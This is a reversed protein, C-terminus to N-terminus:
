AVASKCTFHRPDKFNLEYNYWHSSGKRASYQEELELVEADITDMDGAQALQLAEWESLPETKKRAAVPRADAHEKEDLYDIKGANSRRALTVVNDESSVAEVENKTDAM